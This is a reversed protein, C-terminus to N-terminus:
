EALHLSHVREGAKEENDPLSSVKNAVVVFGNGKAASAYAEEYSFYWDNIFSQSRNENAPLLVLFVAQSLYQSQVGLRINGSM